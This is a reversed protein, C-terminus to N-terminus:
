DTTRQELIEAWRGGLGDLYGDLSWTVKRGGAELAIGCLLDSATRYEIDVDAGLVEHSAQTIRRRVSTPLEFASEIVVRGGASRVNEALDRREEEDLQRLRSSFVEAMQEELSRDALDALARRALLDFHQATLRRVEAFLAERESRQTDMWKRRKREVDQRLEEELSKRLAEAESRAQDLLERRRKELEDRQERYSREQEEADRIKEEADHLRSAIEAERGDMARLIPAYLFRKLLGVLILFNVIQAAVTVWDVSM